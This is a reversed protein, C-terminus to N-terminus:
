PWLGGRGRLLSSAWLRLPRSIRTRLRDPAPLPGLAAFAGASGPDAFLRAAQSVALHRAGAPGWAPDPQSAWIVMCAGSRAAMAPFAPEADGAGSLGALENLLRDVHWRHTDPPRLIGAGPVALGISVGEEAARAICSAALSIARENDGAERGLRVIVWERTPSPAARQTVLLQGTRATARWAIHRPLDGPTYERLAFFEDGAGAFRDTSAGRETRRRHAHMAGPRLLAVLPRVVLTRPQSFTVSKRVIGFPFTSWVQVGNLIAHGRARPWAVAEAHLMQGPGVHAVHCRPGERLVAPWTPAPEGTPMEQITLGFAPMFRNTNRVTYVIILPQGVATDAAAIRDVRVGMLSMGSVLGSVLLGGIALGLAVFLLNNQSNLAGVSLFVAVGVYVLGPLHFHYRRRAQEGAM